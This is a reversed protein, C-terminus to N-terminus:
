RMNPTKMWSDLLCAALEGTYPLWHRWCPQALCARRVALSLWMALAAKTAATHAHRTFQSATNCGPPQRKQATVGLDNFWIHGAADRGNATFLGPKLTLLSLTHRQATVHHQPSTDLWEGTDALLGTPVDVCLVPVNSRQMADLWQAMLGEPARQAGIGLLTDIALDFQVPPQEAFTVGADKARLWSQKADAPMHGDKGLWTVIPHKGWAQLHMSAELGDGGNNGPGCAIWIKQAHPAIALALQATALGARQMLTHVPLAAQAEHEIAQTQAVSHLPWTAQSNLTQTLGQTKM